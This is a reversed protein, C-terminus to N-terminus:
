YGLVHILPCMLFYATQGRALAMSHCSSPLVQQINHVSHLSCVIAWRMHTWQCMAELLRPWLRVSSPVDCSPILFPHPVSPSSLLTRVSEWAHHGTELAHCSCVHALNSLARPSLHPGVMSDASSTSPSRWGGSLSPFSKKLSSCPSRELAM